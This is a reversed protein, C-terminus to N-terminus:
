RGPALYKNLEEPFHKIVSLIPNPVVQGLGCISTIGMTEGLDNIVALQERRVNRKLVEQLPATLKQSGMRCPVCRGCSENRFFATCNLAQDVMDARDGYVVFAAGLMGGMAGLTNFDLPLDLLDYTKAGQLKDQVFKPPLNEA